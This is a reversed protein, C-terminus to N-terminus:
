SATGAETKPNMNENEANAWDSVRRNAERILATMEEDVRDQRDILGRQRVKNRIYAGCLHAGVCGPNEVLGELQERYWNGDTRHKTPDDTRLKRAGDAWLVPMDTQEHWYQLHEVPERFDQFSLVDVYPRAAEMIETSLPENAEYRDGLILHNPDYRRIADHTVRYYQGAM